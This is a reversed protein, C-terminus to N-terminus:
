VLSYANVDVYLIYTLTVSAKLSKMFSETCVATHSECAGLVRFIYLESSTIAGRVHREREYRNLLLLQESCVFFAM